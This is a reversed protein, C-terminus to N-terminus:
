PVVGGRHHRDVNKQECLQGFYRSWHGQRSRETSRGNEPVKARVCCPVQCRWQRLADLSNIDKEKV